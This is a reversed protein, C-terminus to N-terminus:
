RYRGAAAPYSQALGIRARLDIEQFYCRLQRDSIPKGRSALDTAVKEIVDDHGPRDGDAMHVSWAYDEMVDAELGMRQGAWLGFMVNRRAIEGDRSDDNFDESGDTRQLSRTM